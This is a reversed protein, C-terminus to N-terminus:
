KVEKLLEKKIAVSFIYQLINAQINKQEKFNMNLKEKIKNMDYKKLYKYDIFKYKIIDNLKYEQLIEAILNKWKKIKLIKRELNVNRIVLDELSSSKNKIWRTYNQNYECDQMNAKLNEIKIEIRDYNYLYYEIKKFISNYM